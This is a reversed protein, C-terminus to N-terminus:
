DVRLLRSSVCFLSQVDSEWAREDNSDLGRSSVCRLGFRRDNARSRDDDTWLCFGAIRGRSPQLPVGSVCVASSVLSPFRFLRLLVPRFGRNSNRKFGRAPRRERARPREKISGTRHWLGFALSYRSRFSRVFGGQDRQLIGTGPLLSANWPPACSSEAVSRTRFGRKM